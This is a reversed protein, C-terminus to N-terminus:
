VRKVQGAAVILGSPRAVLVALVVAFVFADRYPQLSDPLIVQLAVQSSGLIMGGLAAGLLSGMGGIITAVFAYVLPTVGITPTVTGTQAVYLIAAVSALLGSLGFAVAIVENAGVGLLRCMEFDEAAARMKVGLLTAKLFAVLAVGLVAVTSITVIGLRPVTLSGIQFVGSLSPLFNLSKPISSFSLAAINQLLYSVAFSTVLLTTADAGRIPRFAIREMFLSLVVGTLIAAIVVILLPPGTFLVVVYGAMMILEGYAFNILRMVGFVLAIGLAYM